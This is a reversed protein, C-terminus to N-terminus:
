PSTALGGQVRMYSVQMPMRTILQAELFIDYWYIGELDFTENLNLLLNHASEEGNVLISGSWVPRREGNPAEREVRVEHRGRARGAVFSLVATFALTVTPMDQPPAPGTATSILRDIVRILSLVSDKGEIVRECFAACKVYPGGEFAVWAEMRVYPRM